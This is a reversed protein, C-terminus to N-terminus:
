SHGSPGSSVVPVLLLPKAGHPSSHTPPGWWVCRHVSGRCVGCGCVGCVSMFEGVIWGGLFGVCVWMGVGMFRVCVFGVGVYGGMFRVGVLFGLCGGVGVSGGLGWGWLGEVGVGCGGVVGVFKGLDWECVGVMFRVGM